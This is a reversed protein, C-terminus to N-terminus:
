SMGNNSTNNNSTPYAPSAVSILRGGNGSGTGTGTTRSSYSMDNHISNNANSIINTSTTNNHIITTHKKTSLIQATIRDLIMLMKEVNNVQENM